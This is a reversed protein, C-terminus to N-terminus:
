GSRVQNQLRYGCFLAFSVFYFCVNSMREREFVSGGEVERDPDVATSDEGSGALKSFGVLSDEGVPDVGPSGGALEFVDAEASGPLLDAIAEVGAVEDREKEFLHKQAAFFCL